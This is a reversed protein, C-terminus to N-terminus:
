SDTLTFKDLIDKVVVERVVIQGIITLPLALFLGLIGLLSAFFVEGIIVNAPALKLRNKRLKPIIYYEIIQYMLVYFLVVAWPKWPSILLAIATPAIVSITTGIYPILVLIGTLFGQAFVLPIQLVFLIFCSLLLASSIKILTDTLWEQLDIECLKLIQNIRPRYFKPFLRIFGDRYPSPDVLIMLTLALLLLSSLLIGFFGSVFNVGRSVLDNLIPRLQELIAQLNPLSDIIEISLNDRIKNLQTILQDIGQPVLQSLQGFQSILSPVILVVFFLLIAMLSTTSILVAQNRQIGFKRLQKVCINLSIALVLATLVLLLLQKIQWLVYVFVIVASFSIWKSFNM